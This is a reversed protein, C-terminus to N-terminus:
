AWKPDSPDNINQVQEAGYYSRCDKRVEIRNKRTGLLQRLALDERGLLSRNFATEDIWARWDVFSAVAQWDVWSLEPFTAVFIALETEALPKDM